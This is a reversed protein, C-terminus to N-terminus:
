AAMAQSEEATWINKIFEDMSMSGFFKGAEGLSNQFEYLTLSYISAHRALPFGEMKAPTMTSHSSVMIRSETQSGM